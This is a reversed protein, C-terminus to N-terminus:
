LINYAGIDSRFSKGQFDIRDINDYLTDKAQTFTSATQTVVLTRGANTLYEMYPNKSTAFHNVITDDDLMDLGSVPKDPKNSFLVCSISTDDKIPIDSYEDTFSGNVCSEALRLFDTGLQSLVVQIDSDKMFPRLNTVVYENDNLLVCDIGIIGVYAKDRVTDLIKGAVNDMLDGVLNFSIKYDPSFAASGLTYLGGDGNEKFRYDAVVGLPLASVGDTIVYLTFNHGKVYDEIVFKNTNQFEMDSIITLAQSTNLAVASSFNENEEDSSIILFKNNKVYDNALNPKDFVAFKSTPIRQRYLFKKAASKTLLFDANSKEPAFIPQENASFVGGIDAKIAKASAVVTFTVNNKIAFELLGDVDDERLDVRTAFEECAKNGSAVYVTGVKEEVCFWRALSHAVASSAVILVTKEKNQEFM